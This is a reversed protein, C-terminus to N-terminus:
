YPLDLDDTNSPVTSAFPLENPADNRSSPKLWHWENVMLSVDAAPQNDQKRTYASVDLKGSVYVADGKNCKELVTNANKGFTRCKLWMTKPKNKTGTSVALTFEAWSTAGDKSTKLSPSQGVHGMFQCSNLYPM